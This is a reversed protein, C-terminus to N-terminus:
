EFRGDPDHTVRGGVMTLVPTLSPLQDVDATFPDTSYAVLDALRGVDLTARRQQEHDLRAEGVTYLGIATARDIAHEVGQVGAAKTGRTVMGWVNLLPNFPRAIDTGAALSAGAELWEDIPNVRATREPGWTHLMESGMNWLLAHQV